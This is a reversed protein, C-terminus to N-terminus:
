SAKAQANQWAGTVARVVDAVSDNPRFVVVVVLEGPKGPDLMWDQRPNNYREADPLEDMARRVSTEAMGALRADAVFLRM